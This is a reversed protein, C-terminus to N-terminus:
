AQGKQLLELKESVSAATDKQISAIIEETAPNIIDLHTASM